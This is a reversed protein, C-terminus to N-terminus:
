YLYKVANEGAIRGSNIAFGLTSGALEACYTESEWGGADVGAAYLGPIPRDQKDLVEMHENIKIGGITDLFDTRCEIAYYPPTRLPQLFRRDKAFVPDYGQDCAANYEDVTARLVEPDAGILEAMEDWSDCIKVRGKAAYKRLQGELGPLKVGMKGPNGMCMILGEETMDRVIKSDFVTYTVNGPQRVAANPSEFHNFGITEDVFRRGEKNLWLTNPELALGMLPITMAPQTNIRLTVQYTHLSPGTLHLVGLGETAAGIETAMILGDGNNPIGVCEMNDRYDPCYKKLLEKNGGYGGTAIIVSRAAIILEDGDKAALVGTIDGQDNLVIKKAGAKLFVKVGLKKCEGALVKMLRAGYGEPVHWVPLQNIWLPFVGFRIGKEELWRITDGSKEIFARVIRPNIRWHSWKMAVRFLDDKSAHIMQRKQVPSEAAFLGYALASNGGTSARKELVIVNKAGKEAAAAAAALGAGGGGIIVLDAAPNGVEASGGTGM